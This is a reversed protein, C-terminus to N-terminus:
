LTSPEGDGSVANFDSKFVSILSTAFINTVRFHRGEKELTKKQYLSSKSNPFDQNTFILRTKCDFRLDFLFPEITLAAGVVLEQVVM